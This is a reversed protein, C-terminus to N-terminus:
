DRKKDLRSEDNKGVSLLEKVKRYSLGKGKITKGNITVSLEQGKYKNTSINLILITIVGLFMTLLGLSGTEIQGDIFAAKINIVGTAKLDKFCMFIGSIIMILAALMSFSRTHFKDIIRNLIKAKDSMNIVEVLQLM